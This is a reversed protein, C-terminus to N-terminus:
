RLDRENPTVPSVASQTRHLARAEAPMLDSLWKVLSTSAPILAPDLPRVDSSDPESSRPALGGILGNRMLVLKDLTIDTSNEVRLGTYGGADTAWSDDGVIVVGRLTVFSSEGIRVLTGPYIGDDGPGAQLVAMGKNKARVVVPEAETGLVSIGLTSSLTYTGDKLVLEDGPSLSEVVSLDDAPGIEFSAAHAVGLLALMVPSMPSM